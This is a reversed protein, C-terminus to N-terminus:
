PSTFIQNSNFLYTLYIDAWVWKTTSNLFKWM